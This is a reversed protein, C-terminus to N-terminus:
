QIVLETFYLNTVQGKKLVGNLLNLIEIRLRQRIDAAELEDMRKAGLASTIIDVMHPDNETMEQIVQPPGDISIAARLFRNGGTGAINVILDNKKYPEAKEKGGEAAGEAKGHGGKAAGEAKGHAGEKGEESAPAGAEADARVARIRDLLVYRAIAWGAVPMLLLVAVATILPVLSSLGSPGAAPKAAAAEEGGEKPAEKGPEKAPEKAPDKAPAKAAEKAPADPKKAVAADPTPKKEPEAM